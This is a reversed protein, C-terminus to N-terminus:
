NLKFIKVSFYLTKTKLWTTINTKLGTKIFFTNINIIFNNYPIPIYYIIIFYDNVYM